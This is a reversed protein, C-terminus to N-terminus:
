TSFSLFRIEFWYSIYQCILGIVTINKNLLGCLFVYNMEILYVNNYIGDWYWNVKIIYCFRTFKHDIRFELLKCLVVIPNYLWIQTNYPISYPIFDRLKSYGQQNWINRVNHDQTSYISHITYLLTALIYLIYLWFGGKYKGFFFLQTFVKKELVKHAM